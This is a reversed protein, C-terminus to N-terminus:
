WVSLLEDNDLNSPDAESKGHPPKLQAYDAGGAVVNPQFQLIKSSSKSASILTVVHHRGRARVAFELMCIYYAFLSPLNEAIRQTVRKWTM